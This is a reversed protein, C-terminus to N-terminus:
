STVGHTQPCKVGLVKVSLTEDREPSLAKERASHKSARGLTIAMMWLQLPKASM